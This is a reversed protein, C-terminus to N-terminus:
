LMVTASYLVGDLVVVKIQGAIKEMKDEHVAKRVEEITEFSAGIVGGSYVNHYTEVREPINELQLIRCPNVGELNFYRVKHGMLAVIPYDPDPRDTCLIRVPEQTHANRVPRGWDISM